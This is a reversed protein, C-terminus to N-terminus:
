NDLPVFEGQEYILPTKLTGLLIRQGNISVSLQEVKSFFITDAEGSILEVQEGTLADIVVVEDEGGVLLQRGDPFFAADTNYSNLTIANIEEATAANWVRLITPDDTIYDNELSVFQSGDPSFAVADIVLTLDFAQESVLAGTEVNWLRVTPGNVSESGTVATKGDPAFAVTTVESDGHDFSQVIEGTASDHLILNEASDTKFFQTGDPTFGVPGDEDFDSPNELSLLEEGTTADWMRFLDGDNAILKTGDPSFAISHFIDNDDNTLTYLVSGADIDWVRIVSDAYGDENNDQGDIGGIAALTGDSTMTMFSDSIPQNSLNELVTGSAVDILHGGLLLTQGDPSFDALNSSNTGIFSQYLPEWTAIDIMTVGGAGEVVALLQSDPSFEVFANGWNFKFSNILEGTAADWLGSGTAIYRGDLSFASTEVYDEHPLQMTQMGADLDWLWVGPNFSEFDTSLLRSGDPSLALSSIRSFNGELTSMRQNSPIDWVEITILDNQIGALTTGDASVALPESELSGFTQLIEGTVSDILAPPNFQYGAVFHQSDPLFFLSEVSGGGVFIQRSSLDNLNIITIIGISGLLATNGDPSIAVDFVPLTGLSKIPHWPEPESNEVITEVEETQTVATEEVIVETTATPIIEATAVPEAAESEAITEANTDQDPVATAEVTDQGDNSCAALNIILVLGILLTCLKSKHNITRTFAM